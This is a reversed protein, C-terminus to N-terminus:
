YFRNPHSNITVTERAFAMWSDLTEVLCKSRGHSGPDFWIMMFPCAISDVGM